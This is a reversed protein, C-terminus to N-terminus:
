GFVRYAMLSHSHARAPYRSSSLIRVLWADTARRRRYARQHVQALLVADAGECHVGLAHVLLRLPHGGTPLVQDRDDADGVPLLHVPRVVGAM